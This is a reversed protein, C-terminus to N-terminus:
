RNETKTSDDHKINNKDIAPNSFSVKNLEEEENESAIDEETDLKDDENAEVDIVSIKKVM